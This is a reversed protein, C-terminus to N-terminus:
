GVFVGGIFDQDGFLSELEAAVPAGSIPDFVRVRDSDIGAAAVIEGDGDGDVDSVSVRVGGRFADEFAFFQNILGGTRGSFIKVHPGGTEGAGTIIDAFGDADVDSVTVFVGGRFNTDYAFFDAVPSDIEQGTLGNFVRVRPGGGEGAAAIIEPVGDGNVDGVAVRVGGTFESEFASFENLLSGDAGSFVRIHPGGGFGPGTVIDAQGDNNIDGAAVFIGGRFGADYAFFDGADTLLKDGTRGDFIRIHPGGGIGAGTIIDPTGDGTVDGMAVRVGGIFAEEFASFSFLTENTETDMVEVQSGGGNGVGFAAISSEDTPTPNPTPDPNPDSNGNITLVHDEVEGDSALGTSGLSTETTVRFRSFTEGSFGNDPATFPINVVGNGLNAYAGTGDAIQEGDDNFDGDGNFDIWAFLQADASDSNAITVVAVDSEGANVVGDTSIVVGDEDDGGSYDLTDSTEFNGFDADAIDVGVDMTISYGGGTAPQTNGFGGLSQQRIVYDGIPLGNIVYDGNADSTTSFEGVDLTGNNNADAFVTVGSIGAEAGDQRGNGNIDNYVTGAVSGVGVTDIVILEDFDNVPLDTFAGGEDQTPFGALQDVLTMDVIEAFVTFGGNQNDLNNSNDALNIFFQNTASNPDSGIKAMAVTARVNSRNFENVVAPDQPVSTFQSTDTFIESDTTFGGGQLVFGPMLRHFISNDYDGDRVYNLFNEVTEPAATPDLEMVIDGFNTHLTILANDTQTVTLPPAADGDDGTGDLPFQADPETDRDTGLTPGVDDHRAGDNSLLTGYTDPADGFDFGAALLVREELAECNESLQRRQKSTRRKAAPQQSFSWCWLSVLGRAIGFSDVIPM